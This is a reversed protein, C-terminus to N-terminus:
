QTCGTYVILFIITACVVILMIYMFQETRRSLHLLKSNYVLKSKDKHIDILIRIAVYIFGVLVCIAACAACVWLIDVLGYLDALFQNTM